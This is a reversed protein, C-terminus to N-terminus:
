RLINIGDQDGVEQIRQLGPTNLRNNTVVQPKRGLPDVVSNEQNAAPVSVSTPAHKVSHHHNQHKKNFRFNNKKEISEEEAEKL